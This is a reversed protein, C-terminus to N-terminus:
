SSILIFFSVTKCQQIRSSISDRVDGRFGKLRELYLSLANSSDEFRCLAPIEEYKVQYEKILRKTQSCLKYFVSLKENFEKVHLASIDGVNAYIAEDSYANNNSTSSLSSSSKTSVFESEDDEDDYIHINKHKEAFDHQNMLSGSNDTDTDTGIDSTSGSLRLYSFSASVSRLMYNDEDQPQELRSYHGRNEMIINNSKKGTKVDAPPVLRSHSISCSFPAAGNTEPFNNGVPSEKILLM